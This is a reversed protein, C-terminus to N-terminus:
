GLWELDWDSTHDDVASIISRVWTCFKASAHQDKIVQFIASEDVEAEVYKGINPSEGGKTRLAKIGSAVCWKQMKVPMPPSDEKTTYERM